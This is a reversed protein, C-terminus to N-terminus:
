SAQRYFNAIYTAINAADSNEVLSKIAESITEPPLIKKRLKLLDALFEPKFEPHPQITLARNPYKLAAYKCKDSVGIIIADNPKQVVQDQHWAPLCVKQKAIENITYNKLGVQWGNNSKEVVGGLAQAFIQHGFCIGVTPVSSNYAKQLFKELPPIWPHNEYAGCKSGTILWGQAENISKPFKQKAIEFREFEFGRGQFLAEFMDTFDGHEQQLEEPANGTQLIGIKM